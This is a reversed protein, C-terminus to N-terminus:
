LASQVVWAKRSEWSCFSSLWMIESAEPPWLRSTQDETILHRCYRSTGSPITLMEEGMQTALSPPFVEKRGCKGAQKGKWVASFAHVAFIGAMFERNFIPTLSLYQECVDM